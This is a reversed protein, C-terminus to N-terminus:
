SDARVIHLSVAFLGREEPSNRQTRAHNAGLIRAQAHYGLMNAVERFVIVPLWRAPSPTNYAHSFDLNLFALGDFTGETAELALNLLFVNDFVDFLV